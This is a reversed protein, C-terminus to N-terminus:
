LSLDREMSWNRTRTSIASNVGINNRRKQYPCLSLSQHLFEPRERCAAQLMGASWVPPSSRFIPVRPACTHGPVCTTLVNFHGTKIACSRDPKM